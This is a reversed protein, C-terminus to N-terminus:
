GDRGSQLRRLGGPAWVGGSSSALPRSARRGTRTPGRHAVTRAMFFSITSARSPTAANKMTFFTRSAQAAQARGTRARVWWWTAGGLAGALVLVGAGWGAVVLWPAPSAADPRGVTRRFTRVEWGRRRAERLLERDANVAVARGVAALMPVDSASDSYAYSADLDIGHRRAAEEILWVKTDGYAYWELEGTYRGREDLRARTALAEDVGLHRALPAVIEEPSASVLFVKRGAARHAGILDLAEQYVIPAVVDDLTERVIRSVMRHDWGRILSLVATRMRELQQEDAGVLLYVVQGWLARVLLRRSILGEQRLPRGFAVMSARAIVTKDLDFFAAEVLPRPYPSPLGCIPQGRGFM